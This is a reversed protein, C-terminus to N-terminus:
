KKPRYFLSVIKCFGYVIKTSQNIAINKGIAKGGITLAATLATVTLIVIVLPFNTITAISLSVVSVASGSIIGCIDGVVDNCISAVKDANQIFKIAVKAGKKKRSNMAHFPAIDVSTMAVGVVDFLIGLIIIFLLILVGVIVNVNKLSIESLFSFAFSLLFATITIKIIWFVRNLSEKNKDKKAM